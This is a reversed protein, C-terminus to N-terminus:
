GNLDSAARVSTRPEIGLLWTLLESDGTVGAGPNGVGRDDKPVKVHVFIYCIMCMMLIIYIFKIFSFAFKWYPVLGVEEEGERGSVM